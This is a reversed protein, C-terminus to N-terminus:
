GSVADSAAQGLYWEATKRLGGALSLPPSWGLDTKIRSSDVTLSGILRDMAPGKGTIRGMFFLLLGPCPFLRTPVNLGAAIGRILQPTSVDEGDSVLFLKGAAAPHTCCRAIADTLNELYIFSRRNDISALPLPLKKAVLRLLALFNAKVGPGYVLPPRLITLQLDSAAAIENLKEEAQLKSIAYSDRPAPPDSERYPRLNEEGNVKVTSLFVFRKVGAAAACEALQRTGEVNVNWYEVFPDAATDKMVHVRAALHVITDVNEVIQQWDTRADISEIQRPEVGQPLHSSKGARVAGRVQQGDALLKRCVATGVFGNAGTVLVSKDM